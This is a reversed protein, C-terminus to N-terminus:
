ISVVDARSALTRRLVIPKGGLRKKCIWHALASDLYDAHNPFWEALARALRRGAEFDCAMVKKTVGAMSALVAAHEDRHCAAAPFTTEEMWREEAAFHERSHAHLARLVELMDEDSAGLLASVLELFEEHIDDMPEFGLRLDEHWQAPQPAHEVIHM